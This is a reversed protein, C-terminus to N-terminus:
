DTSIGGFSDEM